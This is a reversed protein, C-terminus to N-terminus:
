TILQFLQIAKIVQGTSEAVYLGAIDGAQQLQEQDGSFVHFSPARASNTNNSSQTGLGTFLLENRGGKRLPRM